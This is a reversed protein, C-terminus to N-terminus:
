LGTDSFPPIKAGKLTKLPTIRTRERDIGIASTIVQAGTPRAIGVLSIHNAMVRSLPYKKCFIEALAVPNLIGADRM